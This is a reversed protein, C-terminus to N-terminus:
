REEWCWIFSFIEPNEWNKSANSILIEFYFKLFQKAYKINHRKIIFNLPDKQIKQSLLKSLVNVFDNGQFDMVGM